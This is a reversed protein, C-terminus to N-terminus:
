AKFMKLGVGVGQAFAASETGDLGDGFPNKYIDRGGGLVTAENRLWPEAHEMVLKAALVEEEPPVSWDHFHVVRRDDVDFCIRGVKQALESHRHAIVYRHGSLHGEVLLARQRAWQDHQEPTLFSLLVESAPGIAGPQCQPCCPTPRKVSAAAAEKKGGKEGKKARAVAEEVAELSRATAGEVAEMKGDSFKVATLTRDKPRALGILVKSAKALPATIPIDKARGKYPEGKEPPTGDWWKKKAAIRLFEGAVISEQPTPDTLTLRAGDGDAGATLRMDGNWSPLYIRM